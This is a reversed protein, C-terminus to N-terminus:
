MASEIFIEGEAQSDSDSDSHYRRKKGRDDYEEDSDYLRGALWIGKDKIDILRTLLEM